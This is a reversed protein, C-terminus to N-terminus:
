ERQSAPKQESETILDDNLNVYASKYLLLKSATCATADWTKTSMQHSVGTEIDPDDAMKDFLSM